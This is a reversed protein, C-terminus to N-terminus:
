KCSTCRLVGLERVFEFGREKSLRHPVQTRITRMLGNPDRDPFKKVLVSHIDGLVFQNGKSQQVFEIIAAVVGPKTAVPLEPEPEYNILCPGFGLSAGIEVCVDEHKAFLSIMSPTSMKSVRGTFLTGNCTENLQKLIQMLEIRSLENAVTVAPFTNQTSM